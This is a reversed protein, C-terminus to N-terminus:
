CRSLFRIASGGACHRPVVMVGMMMVVLFGVCSFRDVSHAVDFRVVCNVFSFSRGLDVADRLLRLSSLIKNELNFTEHVDVTMVAAFLRDTLSCDINLCVSATPNSFM